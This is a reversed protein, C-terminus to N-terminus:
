CPSLCVDVPSTLSSLRVPFQIEARSGVSDIVKRVISLRIRRNVDHLKRVVKFFNRAEGKMTFRCCFFKEIAKQFNRFIRVIVQPLNARAAGWVVFLFFFRGKLKLRNFSLFALLFSMERGQLKECM